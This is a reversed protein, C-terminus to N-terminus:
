GLTIEIRKNGIGAAPIFNRSASGNINFSRVDKGSGSVNVDLNMARYRIKLRAQSIGQSLLPKFSIGNEALKLGVLSGISMRIFGTASWTQRNTANWNGIPGGLEQLGGYSEGTEPHYIEVFQSDRVANKALAHLERGFKEAEGYNACTEAWFGQAHPWVTGSHRGFGGMALYRPFSPWVCAIGQPTTQAKSIINKALEGEAIGFMVAFSIGLAEQYDSNVPSDAIYDLTGTKPNLFHNLISAKLKQAKQETGAADKGLAAAMLPLIKYANYYLCNTSLTKMPIGVGRASSHHNIWDHIGSSGGCGKAYFEPYAAVGDGYCAPGRFLNSTEDFEEYERRALTNKAAEFALELMKKDGTQLFYNWAGTVWIISDWYQGGIVVEGDKRELVSMLTNRAAEPAVLGGFNWVNIATDRTWPRDYNLGAMIAPAEEQMLGSKYNLINTALDGIAIRFAKNVTDNDTHLFPPKIGRDGMASPLTPRDTPRAPVAEAKSALKAACVVAGSAIFNRRSRNVPENGM